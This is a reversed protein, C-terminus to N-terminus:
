LDGVVKRSDSMSLSSITELGTAKLLAMACCIGRCLHKLESIYSKKLELCQIDTPSKISPFVVSKLSLSKRDFFHASFTMPETGFHQHSMLRLSGINSLRALENILLPSCFLNISTQKSRIECLSDLSPAPLSQHQRKLLEM